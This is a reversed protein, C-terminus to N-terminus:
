RLAAFALTSKLVPKGDVIEAPAITGNALRGFLHGQDNSFYM